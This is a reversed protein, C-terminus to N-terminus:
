ELYRAVCQAVAAQEAEDLRSQRLLLQDLKTREEELDVTVPVTTSVTTTQNCFRRYETGDAAEYECLRRVTRLDQREELAYGRALNGRTEAILADIVRGQQTASAICSERPTACAALALPLALFLIPRM